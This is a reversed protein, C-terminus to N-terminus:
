TRTKYLWLQSGSIVTSQCFILNSGNGNAVDLAVLLCPCRLSLSCQALTMRDLTLPCRPQHNSRCSLGIFQGPAALPRFYRPSRDHQQLTRATCVHWDGGAESRLAACQTARQMWPGFAGRFRWRRHSRPIKPIGPRSARAQRLAVSSVKYSPLLYWAYWAFM